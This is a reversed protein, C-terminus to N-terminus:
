RISTGVARELDALAHQFDLGAQLGRQRTERAIQLAQVLAPLGIQGGSYAAQAQREAELGLPVITAEFTTLQDRAATARALAAAIAGTMRAIIATREAKLRALTSDEVLVAAKHTTFVPVTIGFNVRWGHRFEPEADYTFAGGAALDPYQLSKSLNLRASQEAIRRDLVQVETNSATALALAQDSSPLAGDTLSNALVIPADAPQGILANLEARTATAEGRAAVLDNTSNALALDAQTLDSRPVDGSIVRANAGDRARQALGRLDDTIRVRMDAAVVDFYARRVDNRIEAVVRAFDAESVAVTANALDMRRQRKSGLEIPLTAGISQRPTEKSWEYAVEPNLREGAVSVGARDIPRQLRAAAIAPNVAVARDIADTLTLGSPRQADQAQASAAGAPLLLLTIAAPRLISWRGRSM